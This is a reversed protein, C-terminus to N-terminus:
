TILRDIWFEPSYNGAATVNLNGGSNQFVVLEAYDGATFFYDATVQMISVETAHSVPYLVLALITTNNLVIRAQRSGTANAAWAITGTVRYYGDFPITLRSTNSVTSHFADTDYRESNFTLATLTATTIAINASNYVRARIGRPVSVSKLEQIRQHAASISPLM